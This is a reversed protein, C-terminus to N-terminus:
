FISICYKLNISVMKVIEDTDKDMVYTRILFLKYFPNLFHVWIKKRFVLEMPIKFLTVNRVKCIKFLIKM